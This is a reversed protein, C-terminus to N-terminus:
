QYRCEGLDVDLDTVLVQADVRVSAAARAALADVRRAAGHPHRVHRGSHHHRDLVLPRLVLHTGATASVIVLPPGARYKLQKSTTLPTVM